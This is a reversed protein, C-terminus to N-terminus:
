LWLAFTGRLRSDDGVGVAKQEGDEDMGGVNLIAMTRDHQQLLQSAPKWLQAMDKGIPNIASFLQEGRDRMASRPHDLNDFSRWADFAELELRPAPHDFAGESPDASAAAEGFVEFCRRGGFGCPKEDRM